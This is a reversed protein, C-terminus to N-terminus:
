VTVYFSLYHSFMRYIFWIDNMLHGKYVSMKGGILYLSHRHSEGPVPNTRFEMEGAESHGNLIYDTHKKLM